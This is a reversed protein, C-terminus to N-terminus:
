FQRVDEVIMLCKSFDDVLGCFWSFLWLFCDSITSCRPFDDPIMKLHRFIMASRRVGEFISPFRQFDISITHSQRFDEFIMAFRRFEEFITPFRQSVHSFWNFNDFIIPFHKYIMSFRRFNIFLSPFRQFILSFPGRGGMGGAGGRRRLARPRSYIYM